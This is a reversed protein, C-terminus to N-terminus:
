SARQRPLKKTHKLQTGETTDPEKHGWPSYGELSRQGHFAGPLFVPTPQWARRCPILGGRKLRRCQCALNKVALAVQSARAAEKGRRFCM